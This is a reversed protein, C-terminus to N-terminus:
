CHPFYKVTYNWVNRWDGKPTQETVDEGAWEEFEARTVTPYHQGRKLSPSDYQVQTDSIYIIMRDNYVRDFGLAIARPRKKPAYVHNLKLEM